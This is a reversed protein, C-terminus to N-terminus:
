RAGGVQLLLFRVLQEGEKTKLVDALLRVLQDDAASDTKSAVWEAAEAVILGKQYPDVSQVFRQAFSILPAWASLLRLQEWISLGAGYKQLEEPTAEYSPM